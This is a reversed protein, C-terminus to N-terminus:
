SPTLLKPFSVVMPHPTRPTCLGLVEEEPHAAAPKGEEQLEGPVMPIEPQCVQSKKCVELAAAELVAAKATSRMNQECQCSDATADALDATPADDPNHLTELRSLYCLQRFNSLLSKKRLNRRQLKKLQLARGQISSRGTSLLAREGM